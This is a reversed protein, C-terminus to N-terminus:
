KEMRENNKKKSVDMGVARKILHSVIDIHDKVKGTKDPIEVIIPLKKHIRFEKLMTDLDFAIKETIILVGIDTRKTVEQFMPIVTDDSAIFLEHIGAFRLGVATEKDCFAALKM